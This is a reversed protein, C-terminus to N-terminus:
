LFLKKAVLVTTKDGDEVFIAVSYAICVKFKECVDFVFHHKLPNAICYNFHVEFKLSLLPCYLSGVEFLICSWTSLLMALPVHSVVWETCQRKHHQLWIHSFLVLLVVILSCQWMINWDFRLFYFGNSCLFYAFSFWINIM